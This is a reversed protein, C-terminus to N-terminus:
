PRDAVWLTAPLGYDLAGTQVVVHARSVSMWRCKSQAPLVLERSVDDAGRCFVHTGTCGCYGAEDAAFVDAVDPTKVFTGGSKTARSIVGGSAARLHVFDGRVFLDGPESASAITETPGGLKKKRFVNWAQTGELWYVYRDDIAFSSMGEASAISRRNGSPRSIGVIEGWKGISTTRLLFWDVPDSQLGNVGGPMDALKRPRDDELGELLFVDFKSSGWDERVSLIANADPAFLFRGSLPLEPLTTATRSKRHTALDFRDFAGPVRVVFAGDTFFGGDYTGKALEVFKTPGRDLKREEDTKKVETRRCSVLALFLLVRAFSL